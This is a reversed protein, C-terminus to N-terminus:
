DQRADTGKDKRRGEVWHAVDQVAKEPDSKYQLIYEQIEATSFVDTPIQQTFQTRLDHLPKSNGNRSVCDIDENKGYMSDGSTSESASSDM